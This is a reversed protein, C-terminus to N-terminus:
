GRPGRWLHAPVPQRTALWRTWMGPIHLIDPSAIEIRDRDCLEIDM